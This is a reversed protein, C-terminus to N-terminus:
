PNPKKRQIIKSQEPEHKSWAQRVFTQFDRPSISHDACLQYLSKPLDAALSSGSVKYKSILVGLIIRQHTNLKNQVAGINVDCRKTTGDLAARVHKTVTEREMSFGAQSAYHWIKAQPTRHKHKLESQGIEKTQARLIAQALVLDSHIQLSDPDPDVDPRGEPTSRPKTPLYRYRNASVVDEFPVLLESNVVILTRIQLKEDAVLAAAVDCAYQMTKTTKNSDPPM